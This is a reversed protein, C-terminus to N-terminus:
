ANEKRRYLQVIHRVDTALGVFKVYTNNTDAPLTLFFRAFTSIRSMKGVSAGESLCNPRTRM